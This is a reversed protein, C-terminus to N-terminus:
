KKVRYVKLGNGKPMQIPELWDPVKGKQLDSMLGKPAAALFIETEPLVPCYIVYDVHREAAIRRAEDAPAMYARVSAKMGRQVRHYPSALISHHSFALIRTGLDIPNLMLGRPLRNLPEIDARQVCSSASAPENQAATDTKGFGMQAVRGVIGAGAMSMFIWACAAALPRLDPIRRVRAIMAACPLIAFGGVFSFARVQFLAVICAVGLLLTAAIWSDRRQSLKETLILRLALGVAIAAYTADMVASDLSARAYKYLPAAEQVNDMFWYKLFPDLRAYPAMLLEPFFWLLLGASVGGLCAGGLLRLAVKEMTVQALLLWCLGGGILAAAHARGFADNYAATWLPPAITGIMVGLCGGIMGLGAGRLFAADLSQRSWLWWLAVQTAAVYPLTELGVGLSLAMMLGSVAGRRWGFPHLLQGLLVVMFLIQLGHHDIRGPLMQLLMSGSTLTVFLAPLTADPGLFRRASAVMSWLVGLLILSPYVVVALRDAWTDSVFLRAAAMPLILGLDSIRSWHISGGEPPDLRHQTLDFWSQGALFDHVQLLRLMDDNDALWVPALMLTWRSASVALVVLLWVALLRVALPVRGVAAAARAFFGPLPAPDTIPLAITSVTNGTLVAALGEAILRINLLPQSIKVLLMRGFIKVLRKGVTFWPQRLFAHIAERRGNGFTDATTCGVIRDALRGAWDMGAACVASSSSLM